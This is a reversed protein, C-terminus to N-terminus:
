PQLSSPSRITQHRDSMGPTGPGANAAPPRTLPQDPPSSETKEPLPVTKRAYPHAREIASPSNDGPLDVSRDHPHKQAMAPTSVVVALGLLVRATFSRM